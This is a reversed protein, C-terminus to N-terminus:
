RLNQFAAVLEELKWPKPVFASIQLDSLERAVEKESYVTLFIINVRPNFSM